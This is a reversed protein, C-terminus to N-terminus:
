KNDKVRELSWWENIFREIKALNYESLNIKANHFENFQRISIATQKRMFEYSVGKKHHLYNIEDRLNKTRDMNTQHEKRTELTLM